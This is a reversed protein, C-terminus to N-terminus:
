RRGAPVIAKDNMPSEQAQQARWGARSPDKDAHPETLRRTCVGLARTLADRDGLLVSQHATTSSILLANVRQADDLQRQLYATERELEGIRENQREATQQWATPKRTKQKKAM